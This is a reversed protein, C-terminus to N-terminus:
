KIEARPKDFYYGQSKNVGLEVLKDQIAKTEVYEGITKINMEKAFAVIVSTLIESRKDEVITRIISGDIKIFDAQLKMLYEFNSYGTGFDDIAIKCGYKKVEHIFKEIEDFDEISESEVIEFIVRNGINYEELMNFIFSKIDKDLIDEITLNVSFEYTNDKFADFSKKVVIKTLKKYLKAKKAIELFHWPTIINGQRDVLRILSEYKNITNTSNDMIPQFYMVIRDELIADKIEQIWKLNNEYEENLSAEDSYFIINKSEKKALKLAMNATPLLLETEEFSVGVTINLYIDQGDIHLPHQHIGHILLEVNHKIADHNTEKSLLVFEDGNLRFFKCEPNKKLNELLFKSFEVLVKDGFKEGYLDNIQSFTDINILLLSFHKEEKKAEILARRNPLGTLADTYFMKTLEDQTYEMLENHKDKLKQKTSIDTKRIFYKLLIYIGSLAATINLFFFIEQAFPPITHHYTKILIPDLIVSLVVLAIFAYLWDLSNEKKDHVLSAVPAFFAWIMVYSGQAFGGLSWMLFFPLFLVLFMQVKQVVLLNGNRKYCWINLFSVLAYFLPIAAPIYQGFIAYILAWILSVPGIIMPVILISAEKLENASVENTNSNLLKHLYNKYAQIM